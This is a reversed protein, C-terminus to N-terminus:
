WSVQLTKSATWVSELPWTTDYFVSNRGWTSLDQRCTIWPACMVHKVRCSWMFCCCSEADHSRAELKQVRRTLGQLVSEATSSTPEAFTMGWIMRLKHAFFLWCKSHFMGFSERKQMELNCGLNPFRCFSNSCIQLLHIPGFASPYQCKLSSTCHYQQRRLKFLHWIPNWKKQARAAEFFWRLQSFLTMWPTKALNILSLHVNLRHQQM